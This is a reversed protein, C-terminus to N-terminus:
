KLNAEEDPVRFTVRPACPYDHGDWEKRMVRAAWLYRAEAIASKKDVAALEIRKTYRPSHNEYPDFGTCELHWGCCAGEDLPSLCGDYRERFPWFEKYSM